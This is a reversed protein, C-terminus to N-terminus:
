KYEIVTDHGRSILIYGLNVFKEIIDDVLESCINSNSEFIIKKPYFESNKIELLYNYLGNLIIVDHGETDIKLLKLTGVNNEVFLDKVSIVDVEDKQVLHCVNYAIHLPHYKNVSNCGKMWFGLNNHFIINEPIYYITMKKNESHVYDTVAKNIKKVNKKNPLQNLYYGIPEVSIGFIEDDANQILTDFNCTGIEIFDYNQKQM